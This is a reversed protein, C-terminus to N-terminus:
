FDIINISTESENDSPELHEQIMLALQEITAYDFLTGIQVIGPYATEILKLLKIIKLSNGGLEFFNDKVGIEQRDLIIEWITVLKHEIENSPPVYDVGTEIVQDTEIDLLSNKDIKGNLTMPIEDITIFYSPVMFEPLDSKIFTRIESSSAPKDLMCYAFLNKDGNKDEKPLVVAEVIADHKRLATEIEGLEIRLGRLKIQDDNRGLFALNGDPLWKVLDGTKYLIEPTYSNQIFKDQSLIENNLYGKAIGPGGVYLEGIHGFPVLKQDKSFVYATRNAIPKGIPVIVEDGKVEYLTVSITTETPGYANLIKVKGVLNNYYNSKLEDGGPIIIRLQGLNDLEQNIHSLILPSTSLITIQGTTIYHFLEEIDRRNNPIILCAGACLPAFVEEFSADFSISNHQVFADNPTVGIENIFTNMYDGLSFHTVMVGKPKGTSGSTYIIYALDEKDPKFELALKSYQDYIEAQELILVEGSKFQHSENLDSSTMIIKSQSDSVIYNIRDIPYSTDIPLYVGGSKLIGYIGHMMELSPETIIAVVDNKKIGKDILIRAIQNSKEDLQQYTIEDNNFKLAVSNPQRKVQHEFLDLLTQVPYEIIPKPWENILFHEEASTILNLESIRQEPQTVIDTLLQVFHTSLRAITEPKFLKTAYEISYIIQADAATVNLTLDFKSITNKQDIPSFKLGEIDEQWVPEHQFSFLTDFLPNRSLDRKLALQELLTEFQYDQHELAELTNQKVTELFADFNLNSNPQNRLAITNVFVGIVEKLASHNRGATPSGIIIDDQGSYKALLINYAALFLMYLSVTKEKALTKLQDTLDKSLEFHLTEGEFSQRNPRPYDTPFDLTPLSGKFQNLWFTELQAMDNSGFRENQWTAFAKYSTQIPALNAGNYLQIFEKIFQQISLGDSIIHHMDVMLVHHTNSVEILGVRFANVKLDFPQLFSFILKEVEVAQSKYYQVAANRAPKIMQVPEGGVLDFVTRLAEHRDILQTFTANIKEPLLVGYMNMFGPMNYTISDADFQSMIFLRKQASSLPYNEALLLEPIQSYEVQDTQDIYAGMREITPHSFFVNLPVSVEFQHRIDAILLTAKLSHGGLDFFNDRVGVKDLNLTASWLTALQTETLSRPAMYETGTALQDTPEPLQGRDLKGNKTLPLETLSVFHSPLMYDPLSLALYQRLESRTLPSKEIIYACLYKDGQEDERDIVAVKLIAEHADLTREIEGLEIRFGRIKVQRDLRGLYILEGNPLQKALDGSRYLKEDSKFPNDIFKELTLAERNLYGKSLGAGSVCLEGEVGTPVLQQFADLIFCDLTPIPLGINSEGSEIEATGIEKYTVHVTTETIGYMNILKTKPHDAHWVKLRSPLLVEGGFIVYRLANDKLKLAQQCQIYNYFAGPTQNLVTVKETQMLKVFDTANQAVMKPVIVLKGGNLLAGFMEWVSFDFCYSHFLTWVDSADFDFRNIENFFLRVVNEHSIMVGKPEGTSGSTYIVYATDNIVNNTTLNDQPQDELKLDDINLQKLSKTGINEHKSQSILIQSGSDKLSYNIRESPYDPDIPLYTGGAKLVGLIAVLIDEERGLLLSVIDNPQLQCHHRLYYALQNAKANLTAYSTTEGNLSLAIAKPSKKVQVEFLEHITQKPYDIEVCDSVQLKLQAPSLITLEGLKKEPQYVSDELIRLYSDLFQTITENKYLDTAYNFEIDYETGETISLMLDFKATEEIQEPITIEWGPVELQAKIGAQYNFFVDFLPHRGLTRSLSLAEILAEFQFSQHAIAELVNTKVAELFDSFRQKKIPSNRLALTNIFIGIQENLDAHTRGSVPTGIVINEQNSYRALVVYYASIFYMFPTVEYAKCFANIDASLQTDLTMSVRNGKFSQESPRKFDEPLNLVPVTDNFEALWFEKQQHLTQSFAQAQWVTFDKYQIHHPPLEIGNYLQIFEKIVIQMSVGDMVIHHADFMLVHDNSKLQALQVRILPPKSLDFPKVFAHIIQEIDTENITVIDLEVDAQKKIIQVPKEAKLEFSTRLIDHRKILSNFAKELRSIDIEGKIRVASSINYTTNVHEFGHLMFMRNQAASLPYETSTKAVPIAVYNKRNAGKLHRM